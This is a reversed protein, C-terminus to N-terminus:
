VWWGRKNVISPILRGCVISIQLQRALPSHVAAVEAPPGGHKTRVEFSVEHGVGPFLGELALMAGVLSNALRVNHPVSLALMM